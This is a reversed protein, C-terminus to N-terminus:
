RPPLSVLAGSEDRLLVGADEDIGVVQYGEVVDGAVATVAFGHISLAAHLRGGQRILGVLRLPAPTAQPEPLPSAAPADEEDLLFPEEAELYRFPDRDLRPAAPPPAAALPARPPAPEVTPPVPPLLPGAGRTLFAAALGLALVLVLV